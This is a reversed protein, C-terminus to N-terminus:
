GQALHQLQDNRCRVTRCPQTRLRGKTTVFRGRAISRRPLAVLATPNEIKGVTTALKAWVSDAAKFSIQQGVITRLLTEYGRARVRPQPYGALAIAESFRPERAALADLHERLQEASLGM